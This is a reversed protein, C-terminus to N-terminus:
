GGAGPAFCYDSHITGNNTPWDIYWWVAHGTPNPGDLVMYAPLSHHEGNADFEVGGDATIKYDGYFEHGDAAIM